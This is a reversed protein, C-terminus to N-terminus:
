YGLLSIMDMKHELGLSDFQVDKIEDLFELSNCCKASYLYKESFVTRHINVEKITLDSSGM